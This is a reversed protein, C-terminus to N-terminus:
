KPVEQTPTSPLAGLKAVFSAIIADREALAHDIDALLVLRDEARKARDDSRELAENLRVIEADKSTLLASWGERQERAVGLGEEVQKSDRNQLRSLVAVVISTVALLAPGWYEPGM